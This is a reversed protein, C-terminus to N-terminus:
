GGRGALAEAGTVGGGRLAGGEIGNGTLAPDKPAVGVVGGGTLAVGAGSGGILAGVVGGSSADAEEVAGMIGGGAADVGADKAGGVLEALRELRMMRGPLWSRSAVGTAFVGGAMVTTGGTEEVPRIRGAKVGLAAGAVAEGAVEISGVLGLEGVGGVGGGAVEPSAVGAGGAAMARGPM